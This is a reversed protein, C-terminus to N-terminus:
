EYSFAERATPGNDIPFRKWASRKTRSNRLLVKTATLDHAVNRKRSSSPVSKQGFIHRKLDVAFKM